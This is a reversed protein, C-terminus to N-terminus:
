QTPWENIIEHKSNHRETPMTFLLRCSMCYLTEGEYYDCDGITELVERVGCSPCYYDTERLKYEIGHNKVKM